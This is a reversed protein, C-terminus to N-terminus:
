RHRLVADAEAVGQRDVQHVSMDQFNAKGAGGGGGVHFTGSQSMGWSWALIDIDNKHKDDQSEGQCGDIHLFCDVAM